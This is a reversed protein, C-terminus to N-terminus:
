GASVSGIGNVKSAPSMGHSELCNRRGMPEGVLFVDLERHLLLARPELVVEGILAIERAALHAHELQDAGGFRADLRRPPSVGCISARM